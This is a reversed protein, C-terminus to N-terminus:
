GELNEEIIGKCSKCQPYNQAGNAQGASHLAIAEHRFVYKGPALNKPVTVPWSNNQSIMKIAAWQGGEYGAEDIKVWELTEKKVASIDGTYSAVYTLLPGVHSQPWQTWDFTITGGAEVKALKDSSLDPSANKHCIIDPSGYDSPGVFGNDTDEAYWGIHEPIQGNNKKAYYFDLKFGTTFQNNITVGTVTGHATATAALAAIAGLSSLTKYM